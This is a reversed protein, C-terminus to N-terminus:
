GLRRWSQRVHVSCHVALISALLGINSGLICHWLSALHASGLAPSLGLTALGILLGLLLHGILM